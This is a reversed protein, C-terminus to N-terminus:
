GARLIMSSIIQWERGLADKMQLDIKPGYFAGDGENIEYNGEGYTKDLIARLDNEAREWTALDGMHDEPMTSLEVRYSLGFTSYLEDCISMIDKIEEAIKDETTLIHADDQRFQQVRFLGNLEGSKERRHIVDTQSIRIPLDKYSRLEHKYVNIANPCNMPKMAYLKSIDEEEFSVANPDDENERAEPVLFMNENSVVSM